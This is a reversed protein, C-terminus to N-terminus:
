NHSGKSHQWQKATHAQSPTTVSIRFYLVLRRFVPNFLPHSSHWFLEVFIGGQRPKYCVPWFSSCCQTQACTQLSSQWIRGCQGLGPWIRGINTRIQRFKVMRQGFDPLMQGVNPWARGSTVFNSRTQGINSMVSTSRIPAFRRRSTPMSTTEPKIDAYASLDPPRTQTRITQM